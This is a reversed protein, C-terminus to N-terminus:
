PAAPDPTDTSPDCYGGGSGAAFLGGGITPAPGIMAGIREYGARGYSVSPVINCRSTLVGGPQRLARQRAAIRRALAGSRGTGAAAGTRDNARSGLSHCLQRM